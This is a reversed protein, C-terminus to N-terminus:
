SMLVKILPKEMSQGRTLHDRKGRDDGFKFGLEQRMVTLRQQGRLALGEAGQFGATPWCAGLHQCLAGIALLMLERRMRAPVATARVALVMLRLLPEFALELFLQRRLVKQDGERNRLLEAIQDPLMLTLEVGGHDAATPFRDAGEGLVVFRQLADWTCDRYQVSMRAPEVEVRMDM